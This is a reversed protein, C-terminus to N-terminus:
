KLCIVWFYHYGYENGNSLYYLAGGMETYDSSLLKEAESPIYANGTIWDLVAKSSSKAGNCQRGILVFPFEAEVSGETNLACMEAWKQAIQELNNNWTLLSVGANMRQQNVHSMLNLGELPNQGENIAISPETPKKTPKPTSAPEPTPNETPLPTPEMLPTEDPKQTPETTPSSDLNNSHSINVGNALNEFKYPSKSLESWWFWFKSKAAVTTSYTIIIPNEYKEGNQPDSGDLSYYVDFGNSDIKIEINDSYTHTENDLPYITPSPVNVNLAAIFTLIASIITALSSFFKNERKILAILAFIVTAIACLVSVVFFVLFSLM